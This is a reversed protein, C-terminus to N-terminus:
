FGEFILSFGNCYAVRRQIGNLEEPRSETRVFVNGDAITNGDSTRQVKVNIREDDQVKVNITVSGGDNVDKVIQNSPYSVIFTITDETQGCGSAGSFNELVITTTPCQTCFDTEEECSSMLSISLILLISIITKM